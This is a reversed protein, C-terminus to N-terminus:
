ANKEHGAGCRQLIREIVNSTAKGVTLEIREVRGGDAQVTDHGVIEHIQYDAGKVLVDPRIAQIVRGPTDEAFIIVFDVPKLMSVLFARDEAPNIPRQPGKLRRVSDDDNVAVILADGFQKAKELYEAHGRHLIDFVGNTFVLTKGQQRLTQRIALFDTLDLVPNM